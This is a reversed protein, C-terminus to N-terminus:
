KAVQRAGVGAAPEVASIEHTLTNRTVKLWARCGGGHYWHESTQGAVNDRLYVYNFVEDESADAVPRVPKADGLYTFEGLEREGCFPCVIRM